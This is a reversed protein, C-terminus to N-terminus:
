GGGVGTLITVNHDSFAKHPTIIEAFLDFANGALQAFAVVVFFNM